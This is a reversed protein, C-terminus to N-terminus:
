KLATRCFINRQREFQESGLATFGFGCFTHVALVPWVTACKCTYNSREIFYLMSQNETRYLINIYGIRVVGGLDVRWEATYYGDANITCQGSM